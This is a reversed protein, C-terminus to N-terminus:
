TLIGGECKMGSSLVALAKIAWHSHLPPEGTHPCAGTESCLPLETQVNLRRLFQSSFSTNENQISSISQLTNVSSTKM